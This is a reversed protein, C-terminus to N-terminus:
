AMTFDGGDMLIRGVGETFADWDARRKRLLDIGKDTISYYKRKRGGIEAWSAVVQGNKELTHLIPYLTGEKFKFIGESKSEMEKIIEYGYMRRGELLKLVLMPTSGKLLEKNNMM